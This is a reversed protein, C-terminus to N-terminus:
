AAKTQKAESVRRVQRPQPCLGAALADVTGTGGAAIAPVLLLGFLM